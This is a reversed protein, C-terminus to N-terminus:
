RDFELLRTRTLYIPRSCTPTDTATETPADTATELRPVVVHPKYNGESAIYLFDRGTPAGLTPVRIDTETQFTDILEFNEGYPSYIKVFSAAGSTSDGHRIRYLRGGM